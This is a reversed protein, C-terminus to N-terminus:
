LYVGGVLAATEAKPAEIAEEKIVEEVVYAGEVTLVGHINVRAKVKICATEGNSPEVNKISGLTLALSPIMEPEAYQTDLDFPESRYFTLIKTSPIANNKNFVIPGTEEEEPTPQWTM